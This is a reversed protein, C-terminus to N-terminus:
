WSCVLLVLRHGTAVQRHAPLRLQQLLCVSGPPRGPPADTGAQRRGRAGRLWGQVRRGMEPSVASRKQAVFREVSGRRCSHGICLGGGGARPQLRSERHPTRLAWGTVWVCFAFLLCKSITSVFMICFGAFMPIPYGIRCFFLM